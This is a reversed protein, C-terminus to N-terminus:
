RLDDQEKVRDAKDDTAAQITKLVTSRPQSNTAFIGNKRMQFQMAVCLSNLISFWYLLPFVLSIVTHLWLMGLFLALTVNIM